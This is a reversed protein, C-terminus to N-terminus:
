HGGPANRPQVVRLNAPNIVPAGNPAVAVPFNPPVGPVAPRGQAEATPTPAPAPAVLPMGPVSGGVSAVLHVRGFRELTHFDPRRPASWGAVRHGGAKDEDMVFLNLRLTDDVQPPNHPLGNAIDAWPIAIEAVYGTDNDERNNVSGTVVVASHINPNFDDHGVPQPDRPHDYRTDFHQNNPSVQFEFYNAADGDPDIMVEVADHEWLHNDRATSPDVLNEDTVEFAVYLNQEDWLLRASAHADTTGAAAGSATNVLANTVAASAWAAEDLRGDITIPASARGVSLESVQLQVGTSLEFARARRDGDTAGAPTPVMREAGKWLGVHFRVTPSDWDAPLDFTQRDTIYEGARWREPQYARRVDGVNDENTRPQNADDLHTFLHWGDGVTSMCQWYFTVTMNQGPRVTEASVDYGILKVKNGGFSIDLRHSPTPATRSAVRRRITDLESSSVGRNAGQSAPQEVCGALALCVMWRAVNKM